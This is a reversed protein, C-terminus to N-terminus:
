CGTVPGCRGVDLIARLATKGAMTVAAAQEFSLRAPELVVRDAAARAYEAFSGQLWGLVEDGPQLGHVHAGVAEVTGAGDAGAIRNKRRHKTPGV